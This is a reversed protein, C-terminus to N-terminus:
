NNYLVREGKWKTYSKHWINSLDIIITRIGKYFFKLMTEDSFQIKIIKSKTYTEHRINSIDIRDTGIGGCLFKFYTDDVLRIKERNSM